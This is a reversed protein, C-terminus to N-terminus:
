GRIALASDLNDLLTDLVAPDFHTARGASMIEVVKEFPLAPRYVRDSLLADFVDAVAVVRGELPIAEGALGQPYGGGDWREHHTLAITAALQLLDSDSGALIEYGVFTHFEMTQREEATLPGPKKLIEDPVAIKGVDHMPAAARLLAAREDGLGCLRGLFAAVRAMRNVHVGTEAHRREIATALRDVTEQRSARLEEIAREQATVLEGALQRARMRDSVDTTIGYLGAIEGEANVYPFKVSLFSRPVGDVEIDERVQVSEGSELVEADAQARRRGMEPSLFEASRHGVLGGPPQGAIEHTVPNAFVYRGELNKMYIAVPARELLVRLRTSLTEARDRLDAELRARQIAGLAAILLQGPWFPKVLYGHAGFEFARLAVEPDDEGTILVVATRPHERVIEEALQLGSDGPMQIDCLALAYEDAALKRRAEAADGALECEFREGLTREILRLIEPRDDTALLRPREPEM